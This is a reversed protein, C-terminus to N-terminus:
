VFMNCKELYDFNYRFAAIPYLPALFKAVLPIFGFNFLQIIANTKTASQLEDPSPEISLALGNILFITFVGIKSIFFEPRLPGGSAMFNPNKYALFIVLVEGLVLWNGKLFSLFKNPKITVVGPLEANQTESSMSLSGRIANRRYVTCAPKYQVRACRQSYSVSDVRFRYSSFAGVHGLLVVLIFIVHKLLM